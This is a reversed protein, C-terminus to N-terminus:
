SPTPTTIGPCPSLKEAISVLPGDTEYDYGDAVVLGIIEERLAVANDYEGPHDLKIILRM